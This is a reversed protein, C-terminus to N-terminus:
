KRLYDANRKIPESVDIHGSLTARARGEVLLQVAQVEPFETLTNVIAYVLLSEGNSGLGKAELEKSFDAYAVGKEVKLSLLQAGPPIVDLGKGARPKSYVLADLANEMVPRGNDKITIHEPVLLDLGDPSGRYVTFTQEAPTPPPPPSHPTEKKFCGSAFAVALFLLLLCFRKVM